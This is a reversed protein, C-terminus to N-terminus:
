VFRILLEASTNLLSQSPFLSLHTCYEELVLEADSPLVYMDSLMRDLHLGSSIPLGTLVNRIAPCHRRFLLLKPLHQGTISGTRSKQRVLIKYLARAGNLVYSSLFRRLLLTISTHALFARLSLVRADPSFKLLWFCIPSPNVFTETRPFLSGTQM